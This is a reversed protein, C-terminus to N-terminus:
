RLWFMLDAVNTGTPGTELAVDLGALLRYSDHQALAQRCAAEDLRALAHGDLLAGAAPSSGDVGDTGFSVLLGPDPLSAPGLPHQPPVDVTETGPPIAGHAAALELLGWELILEQNRGGLGSEAGLVVLTEGGWVVGAAQAPASRAAAWLRQAALAARGAAHGSMSELAQGRSNAALIIAARGSDNDAVVCQAPAPRSSAANKPRRKDDFLQARVAPSLAAELGLRQVVARAELTPEQSPISTPGSAILEPSAGVVDSLLLNVVHASGLADLLGGGKVQSLAQRVRNLESIDAGARMLLRSTDRLECLSLGARPLEFLASGGGSILCLVSDAAGLRAAYDLMRAAHAPADDCPHPHAGVLVELPGLAEDHLGLAVGGVVPLWNLCARAMPHAAKGLALVHVANGPPLELLALARRTAAYADVGSLAADVLDLALARRRRYPEPVALLASRNKLLSQSM